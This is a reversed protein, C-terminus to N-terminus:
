VEAVALAHEVSAPHLKKGATVALMVLVGRAEVAM